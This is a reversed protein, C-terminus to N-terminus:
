ELLLFELLISVRNPATVSGGAENFVLDLIDGDDLDSDNNSDIGAFDAAADAGLAKIDLDSTLATSGNKLTVVYSTAATANTEQLYSAKILKMRRHAVFAVVTVDATENVDVNVSVLVVPAAFGAAVLDAHLERPQSAM